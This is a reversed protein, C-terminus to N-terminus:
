LLYRLREVTNDGARTNVADLIEQEHLKMEQALSANTVAVTLTKNKLYLPKMEAEIDEGWLEKAKTAFVDLILTAELQEGIGSQQMHKPLLDGLSTASM